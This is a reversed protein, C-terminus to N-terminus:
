GGAEEGAAPAGAPPLLEALAAAADSISERLEAGDPGSVRYRAAVARTLLDVGRLMLAIDEPREELATRLRLRLLAVEEDLGEVRLADDFAAQEAENLARRYFGRLSTARAAEPAVTM